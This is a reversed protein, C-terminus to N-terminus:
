ADSDQNDIPTGGWMYIVEHTVAELVSATLPIGFGQVVGLRRAVESAGTAAGDRFEQSAVGM